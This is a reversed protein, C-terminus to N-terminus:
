LGLYRKYMEVESLRSDRTIIEKVYPNVQMCYKESIKSRRIFDPIKRFNEADYKVTCLMYLFTENDLLVDELSYGKVVDELLFDLQQWDKTDIKDIDFSVKSSKNETDLNEIGNRVSVNDVTKELVVTTGLGFEVQNIGICRWGEKSKNNLYNELKKINSETDEVKYEYQIMHRNEELITKIMEVLYKAPKHEGTEWKQLTRVPIDFYAAFQSQSMGTSTRLDKIDM